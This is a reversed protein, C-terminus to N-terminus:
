RRIGVQHHWRWLSSFGKGIFFPGLEAVPNILPRGVLLVPGIRREFRVKFVGGKRFGDVFQNFSFQTRLAQM